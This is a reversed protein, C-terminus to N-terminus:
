VFGDDPGGRQRKFNTYNRQENGYYNNTVSNPPVSRKVILNITYIFVGIIVFYYVRWTFVKLDWSYMAIRELLSWVNTLM